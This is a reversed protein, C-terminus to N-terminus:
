PQFCGLLLLLGVFFCPHRVIFSHCVQFYHGKKFVYMRSTSAKFFRKHKVVEQEDFWQGTIVSWGNVWCFYRILFSFFISRCSPRTKLIQSSFSLVLINLLIKRSRSRSQLLIYLNGKRITNNDNNPGILLVVACNNRM